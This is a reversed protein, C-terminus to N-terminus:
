LSFALLFNGDARLSSMLSIYVFRPGFAASSRPLAHSVCYMSSASPNSQVASIYIASQFHRDFIKEFVEIPNTPTEVSTNTPEPVLVM